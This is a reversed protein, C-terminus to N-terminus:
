HYNHELYHSTPMPLFEILFYFILYKQRVQHQQLEHEQLLHHLVSWFQLFTKLLRGESKCFLEFAFKPLHPALM